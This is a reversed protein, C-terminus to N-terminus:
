QNSVSSGRTRSDGDEEDEALSGLGAWSSGATAMVLTMNLSKEFWLDRRKTERRGGEMAVRSARTTRPRKRSGGESLLNSMRIREAERVREYAVISRVFPALDETVIRFTRDFSSATLPYAKSVELTTSPPTALVDFAESFKPWGLSQENLQEDKHELITGVLGEASLDVAAHTTFLGRFARHISSQSQIFMNTDFDTFDASHGAQIVPAAIIYNSREKDTVPPLSTDTPEQHHDAYTPLGVRCYVDAASVSEAMLDLQKLAELGAESSDQQRTVSADGRSESHDYQRPLVGWSTWTEKLLEDNKDFGINDTSISVDHSFWGMGSLYTGQSAVRLVRGHEDIDRGPPWRQYIWELGGKKDGVSMQCWFDMEIISARLDHNKSRLLDCIAKRQLAHGERAAMVLLYDAALDIPPPSLRLIASLPLDYTPILSENNCTIIVPRKSILALRTVQAWFQQDEEFLIDAEELLILSQKQSKQSGTAVPLTAQVSTPAKQPEEIQPKVVPMTKQKPRSTFFSTMTGQRGSSLDKQLADEMRENDTDDAPLVDPLIVINNRKNSVLHNESMDGVKDQVDKGSRRSSSNIEFVEFNLEKAVAYVTASKGCGHPGSIVIVNKHRSFQPLKVSKPRALGEPHGYAESNVLETMEECEEEDSYQIFDDEEKKRKKKVPKKVHATNEANPKSYIVSKVTLNLLWDRLVVAENGSQLVHSASTPAYKQVWSQSECIGQDFPTLIHEIDTFLGEVAPHTNGEGSSHKNTRPLHAKIERRVLEQIDVGTTLLRNPLRVGEPPEFSTDVDKYRDQMVPKLQDSLRTILDEDRPVTILNSKLKRPRFAINDSPTSRLASPTDSNEPNRVHANDRSPWPSEILGSQNKVKTDLGTLGFAPMSQASHHVRSEARIKGPTVASKRLNRPSPPPRSEAPQKNTPLAEEKKPAAKGLFFPHTSKPPGTPKVAAKAQCAPPKTSRKKRSFIEEIRQGIANRSKEDSGYTIVTVTHLPKIKSAARKRRKKPSAAVALEPKTPSPSVLKGKKSIKLTKKKQIVMESELGETTPANLTEVEIGETTQDIGETSDTGRAERIKTPMNDVKLDAATNSLQAADKESETHLQALWNLSNPDAQPRVESPLNITPSPSTTRRRKRRDVNLDTDVSFLGENGHPVHLPRTFRELPVQIKQGPADEKKDQGGDARTARKKRVKAPQASVNPQEYDADAMSLKDPTDNMPPPSEREPSPNRPPKSFFPHVTKKETHMASQMTALAM